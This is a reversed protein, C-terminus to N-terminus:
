FPRLEQRVLGFIEDPKTPLTKGSRKTAGDLRSVRLINSTRHSTDGQRTEGLDGIERAPLLGLLGRSSICAAPKCQNVQLQYGTAIRYFKYGVRGTPKLLRSLGHLRSGCILSVDLGGLIALLPAM